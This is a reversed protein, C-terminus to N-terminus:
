NKRVPRKTFERKLLVIIGKTLDENPDIEVTVKDGKIMRIKKLKFITKVSCDVILPELGEAREVRVKFRTGPLPDSIVGELYIKDPKFEHEIAKPKRRRRPRNRNNAM